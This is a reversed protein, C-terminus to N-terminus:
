ASYIAVPSFERSMQVPSSKDPHGAAPINSKLDTQVKRGRSYVDDFVRNMSSKRTSVKDDLLMIPKQTGDVDVFTVKCAVPGCVNSQAAFSVVVIAAVAMLKKM